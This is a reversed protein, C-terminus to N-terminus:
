LEYNVFNEKMRRRNFLPVSLRIFSNTYIYIYTHTHKHTHTYTFYYYIFSVSFYIVFLRITFNVRSCVM